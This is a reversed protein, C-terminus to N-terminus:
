ELVRRVAGALAAPDDVPALLGTEGDQILYGPGESRAAVLPVGHAWANVVVNGFPEHRSPGVVVSAARLVASRDERWGLFRVRPGGGTEAALKQLRGLLPGDGAIWLYAGPVQALARIAVDIGKTPQLRALVLLIPAGAPTALSAPTVPSQPD